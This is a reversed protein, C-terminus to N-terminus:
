TSSRYRSFNFISFCLIVTSHSWTMGHVPGAAGERELSQMCHGCEYVAGPRGGERGGEGRGRADEGSPSEKGSLMKERSSFTIKSMLEM